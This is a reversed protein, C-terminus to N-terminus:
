TWVGCSTGKGCLSCRVRGQGVHLFLFGVMMGWFVYTWFKGHGVLASIWGCLLVLALCTCRVMWMWIHVPRIWQWSPLFFEMDMLTSEPVSRCPQAAQDALQEERRVRLFLTIWVVLATGVVGSLLEGETVAWFALAACFAPLGALAGLGTGYRKGRGSSGTGDIGTM